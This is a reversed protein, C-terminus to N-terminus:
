KTRFPPLATITQNGSKERALVEGGTETGSKLFEGPISASTAGPPLDMSLERNGQTVNVIYRVIKIGAPSTVPKWTVTFGDSDVKAGKTPFTVDPGHPVRHSFRDAGVLRRGGITRGRFIYKGEPFRKKFQRFPVQDFSPENSEFFLEGLGFGRLRSQGKVVMLKRGTPDRLRFRNWAPENDLNMQLGADGDTANYEIFLDHTEFRLPKKQGAAQAPRAPTAAKAAARSADGGSTAAIVGASAATLATLIAVAGLKRRMELRRREPPLRAGVM